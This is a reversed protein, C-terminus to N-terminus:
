LTTGASFMHARRKASIFNAFKKGHMSWRENPAFRFVREPKREDWWRARKEWEVVGGHEDDTQCSADGRALGGGAVEDGVM